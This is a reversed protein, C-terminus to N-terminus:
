NHRWFRNNVQGGDYMYIYTDISWCESYKHWFVFYKSHTSVREGSITYSVYFLGTTSFSPSFAFGMLGQISPLSAPRHPTVPPPPPPPPPHLPTIVNVDILNTHHYLRSLLYSRCVLCSSMCVSLLCVLCVSLLPLNVSLCVAHYILCVTPFCLIYSLSVSLVSLCSLLYSLCAPPCSLFVLCYIFFVYLVYILVLCVSLVSLCSLLYLFFGLCYILCVSLVSLCSFLYFVSLCACVYEKEKGSRSTPTSSRAPSTSFTLRM